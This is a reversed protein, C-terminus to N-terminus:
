RITANKFKFLPESVEKFDTLEFKFTNQFKCNFNQVNEIM